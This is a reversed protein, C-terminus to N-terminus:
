FSSICIIKGMIRSTIARLFKLPCEEIFGELLWGHPTRLIKELYEPHYRVIESLFFMVAYISLEENIPLESEQTKPFNIYGSFEDPYYNPELWTKFSEKIQDKLKEVPVDEGKETKKSQYYDYDQWEGFRLNFIDMFLLDIPGSIQVREFEEFFKQYTKSFRGLSSNKLVRMVIWSEKSEKDFVFRYLFPTIRPEDHVVRLYQYTIDFCHALLALINLEEPPECNFLARYYKEFIPFYKGNERKINLKKDTLDGEWKNGSSLLGHIEKKSTPLERKLVLFGKVLNLFCYYYLLPSSKYVTKLAGQWYNEAQHIYASFIQWSTELSDPTIGYSRLLKKGEAEIDAVSHLVMWYEKDIAIETRLDEKPFIPHYLWVIPRMIPRLQSSHTM